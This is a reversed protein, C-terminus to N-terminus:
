INVQVYPDLTAAVEPTILGADGVAGIWWQRELVGPIVEAKVLPDRTRSARAAKILSLVAGEIDAPLAPGTGTQGPLIWGATYTVEVKCASWDAPHDNCLRRLVAEAGHFEYTEPDLLEDDEKVSAVITVPTRALVLEPEYRSLRFTEILNQQGISRLGDSTAAIGLYSLVTSSARAILRQLYADDAGTTINLDDKLAALTTLNSAASGAAALISTTM